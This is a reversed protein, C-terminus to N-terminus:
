EVAGQVRMQVQDGPHIVLGAAVCSAATAGLEGQLLVQFKVSQGTTRNTCGGGSPAMGVVAGGVDTVGTKVPGQVHLAVQDGATVGLGAAECNWPSAPRSLTVSHGTTVNQCVVTSPTLGTVWASLAQGAVEVEYAGIDCAGGAAEPRAQWRQDNYLTTGCGNTGSPIADLAPSAPLLAQTFTPGGNDQLPGLRPDTGPMDTPATLQCSGDSDLNYGHSHITGDNRCDGGASQSAILSNTLTLTGYANYLGGGVSARNNSVTSHTLTLRGENWLGGGSSRATNGSVTSHTLTLTGVNWLGGGLYSGSNGRVTSHTLTLTGYPDNYLGGGSGPATNGRVTSATLTLTGTNYLGGGDYAYVSNHGITSATLILTGGENFLGGGDGADNGSVTSRTLTLTGGDNFLGGGHFGTSNDSVTSQTLTLTGTNYLGGGYDSTSNSSVTSQTITLTGENDNFLGGGFVTSNGSVTSRTLTLTGANYLGGGAPNYLDTRGYRITLDQLSMTVGQPITFVRDTAATPTAAAQVITTAAAEGQLTLSKTVTIGPETYTGAAIALTDGDVTTPAAIAAKISSYDCGSACVTWTTAAQTEIIMGLSLALGVLLAVPWRRPRIHCGPVAPVPFTRPM